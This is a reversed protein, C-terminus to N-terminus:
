KLKHKKKRTRQLILKAMFLSELCCLSFFPFLKLWKLHCNGGLKLTAKLWNVDPQSIMVPFMKYREKAVSVLSKRSLWSICFHSFASRVQYNIDKKRWDFGVGKKRENWSSFKRNEVSWFVSDTVVKVTKQEMECSSFPKKWWSFYNFDVHFM